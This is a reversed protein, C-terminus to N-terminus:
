KVPLKLTIVFPMNRDTSNKDMVKWAANVFVTEKGVDIAREGARGSFDWESEELPQSRNQAVRREKSMTMISSVTTGGKGDWRVRELGWSFHYHGFIALMPREAALKDAQVKCGMLGQKKYVENIDDLRHLPPGHMTWIHVGDAKKPADTWAQQAEASPYPKYIFSYPKGM